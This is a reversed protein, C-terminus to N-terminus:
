LESKIPFREVLATGANVNAPPHVCIVPLHQHAHICTHNLMVCTHLPRILSFQSAALMVPHPDLCIQWQITLANMVVVTPCISFFVVFRSPKDYLRNNKMKVQQSPPRLLHIRKIARGFLVNEAELVSPSLEESKSLGNNSFSLVHWEVLLPYLKATM